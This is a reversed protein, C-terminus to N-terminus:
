QGIDLARAFALRRKFDIKKLLCRRRAIRRHYGLERIAKILDSHQM